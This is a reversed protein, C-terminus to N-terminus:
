FQSTGLWASIESLGAVDAETFDNLRDSDVDLVAVVEDDKLIPVVVESRSESSCAIHGPFADVDPVWQPTAEQWATGCVGRGYAIRTCAIDGQFPGLVLEEGEVCYFGVWFFGFTQRLAAAVNALNAVRNPEGDTLGKLQLLLDRYQTLRDDSTSTTLQEAM